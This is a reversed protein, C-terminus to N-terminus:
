VFNACIANKGAFEANKIVKGKKEKRLACLFAGVNTTCLELLM